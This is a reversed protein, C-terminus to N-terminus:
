DRELPSRELSSSVELHQHEHMWITVFVLLHLCALYLTIFTRTFKNALCLRSLELTVREFPSLKQMRRNRQKRSFDEFPNMQKEYLTSYKTEAHASKPMPSQKAVATYNELYKIKEFLDINDNRLSQAELTAQNRKTLAADKQAELEAVRVRLQHVLTKSTHSSPSAANVAKRMLESSSLSPISPGEQTNPTPTSTSSQLDRLTEEKEQYKATLEVLQHEMERVRNSMEVRSEEAKLVRTLMIKEQTNLGPNDLSQAYEVNELTSIHQQLLLVEEQQPRADRQQQALTLERQTEELRTALEKARLVSQSTETKSNLKMKALQAKLGSMTERNRVIEDEMDLFRRRYEKQEESVLLEKEKTDEAQPSALLSKNQEKLSSAM